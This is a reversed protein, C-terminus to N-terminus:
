DDNLITGLGHADLVLANMSPGSLNVAFTEGAEQKSDGNVAVTITRTTEGPAFTLTGTKAVYDGSASTATGNATGFSMTVAQDYAASLTVTFTFLTTQGKKGEAKTVDSISIRPEDDLITGWSTGDAVYANTAGSLTVVFTENAEGRRDGNILVTVTKTTEGPAFTLTNGAAQYDSGATATGDATVYRVTVPQGFAASLSVTFTVARTGTNGETVPTSTVTLSPAGPPPWNADNLLVSVKASSVQDSTMVALDPFGDGNFDAAVPGGPSGNTAFRLPPTFTGDGNGRVINVQDATTALDPHGDGNYDAIALGSGGSLFTRAPQFTGDGNGSVVTLTGGDNTAVDPKGDGNFDAVAVTPAASNSWYGTARLTGDGNGLLVYMGEGTVVDVHGDGNLDALALSAPDTGVNWDTWPDAFTGDGNGLLVQIFGVADWGEGANIAQYGSFVLDARGDANLDGAAVARGGGAVPVPPSFTGDGAALLVSFPTSGGAVLDSIGDGNFDGAVMLSDGGPSNRAAQFSGDGNGLLVSVTGDGSNAAALDPRGDGNFDATVAAGPIAGLPYSVAPYFSPLRRDDLPELRPRYAAPRRAPRTNRSDLRTRFWM